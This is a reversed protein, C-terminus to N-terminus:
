SSSGYPISVKVTQALKWHRSTSASSGAGAAPGLQWVSLTGGSAALAEAVGAQSATALGTTTLVATRAPLAPLTQWGTAQWGITAARGSPLVVSASGDAGFSVSPASSVREAGVQLPRSLTWSLGGNVSWATLLSTAAGTGVALVSTTHTGTANLGVVSVPGSALSAPLAPGAAQWTGDRLTVIGTRGPKGCAGGLLPTGAPTWAAATLATLGCARGASTAALARLTTLRTWSAGLGTGVEVGGNDTIALVRGASSGASASSGALATPVDALGTDLVANQSWHTGADSTAALPSFTLDQSPRFGSLLSSTGVATAVLGGNSAAGVPTALKWAGSGSPRVFLEWFNNHRAASGGMDVIAWSTGDPSTLTTALGPGRIGAVEHATGVPAAASGCGAAAAAAAALIAAAAAVRTRTTM